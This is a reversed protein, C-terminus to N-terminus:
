RNGLKQKLEAIRKQRIQSEEEPSFSARPTTSDGGAGIRANEMKQERLRRKNEVVQPTDGPRPFFDKAYAMRESPPIAAGSADRLFAEVWNAQAAQAAIANDNKMWNPAWETSHDIFQGTQTPDYDDPDSVAKRFQKEAEVGLNYLGLQKAETPSLKKPKEKLPTNKQKKVENFHKEKLNFEKSKWENALRDKADLSKLLNARVYNPDFQRPEQSIDIGNESAIRLANEYSPQDVATGLLQSTLNVKDLSMKLQDHKEKSKNIDNKSFREEAQIAKMPDIKYLDSLYRKKDLSNTGDQNTIINQKAAQNLAQEQKKQQNILERQDMLNRLQLGKGISGAIDLPQINRYISTDIPM